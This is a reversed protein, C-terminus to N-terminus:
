RLTAFSFSLFKCSKTVKPTNESFATVTVFDTYDYDHACVQSAKVCHVCKGGPTIPLCNRIMRTGAKYPNGSSDAVM